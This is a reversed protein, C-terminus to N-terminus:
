ASLKANVIDEVLFCSRPLAQRDKYIYAYAGHSLSVASIRVNRAQSIVVVKCDECRQFIRSLLQQANVGDGLYYDVFAVDTDTELNILFDDPHLYSRIDFIMDRDLAIAATYSELQRTLLRNYFESDELIAIRFPRTLEGM